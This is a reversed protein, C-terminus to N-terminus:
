GGSKRDGQLGLLADLALLQGGVGLGLGDKGQGFAVLGHSGVSVAVEVAQPLGLQLCRKWLVSWLGMWAGACAPAKQAHETAPPCSSCAAWRPGWGGARLPLGGM